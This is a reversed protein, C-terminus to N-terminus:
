QYYITSSKQDVSKGVEQAARAAPAYGGGLATMALVLVGLCRHMM